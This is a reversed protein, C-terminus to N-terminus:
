IEDLIKNRLDLFLRMENAFTADSSPHMIIKYLDAESPLLYPFEAIKQCSAPDLASESILLRLLRIIKYNLNNYFSQYEEKKSLLEQYLEYLKRFNIGLNESGTLWELFINEKKNRTNNNEEIISLFLHYLSTLVQSIVPSISKLLSLDEKLQQFPVISFLYKILDNCLDGNENYKLILRKAMKVDDNITINKDNFNNLLVVKLYQRNPHELSLLKALTDVSYSQYNSIKLPYEDYTLNDKEASNKKSFGFSLILLILTVTFTYSEIRWHHSINSLTIIMDKKFNFLKRHFKFKASDTFLLWALDNFYRKLFFNQSMIMSNIDSFSINRLIMSITSLQDLILISVDDAGKIHIKSFPSDTECRINKLAEMYSPVFISLNEIDYQSRISPIRSTWKHAVKDFNNDEKNLVISDIESNSPVEINITRETIGIQDIDCGTLSDVLIVKDTKSDTVGVNALTVYEKFTDYISKNGESFSTSINDLYGEVDYQDAYDSVFSLNKDRLIKRESSKKIHTLDDLLNIALKALSNLLSPCQNLAIKLQADASSVLLTNLATTIEGLNNCQLSMSIAHLNVTGLEPAFLFIPKHSNIKEGIQSIYNIDYGNTYDIKRERPKYNRIFTRKYVKPLKALETEYRQKIKQELIIKEQLEQAELLKRQELEQEEKQKRELELEKKTKKKQRPKRPKKPGRKNTTKNTTMESSLNVSSSPQIMQPNLNVSMLNPTAMNLSNSVLNNASMNASNMTTPVFNPSGAGPINTNNGIDNNFSINQNVNSVNQLKNQQLNIDNFQNPNMTQQQQQQQQQQHHHHVNELQIKRLLEQLFQQLFNKKALSEKRGEDTNMYKEYGLLINYYIMQLQQPDLIRLKNAIQNWLQKKTVEEYGGNKTVMLSLYFLNVKKNQIEPISQLPANRRKSNEILSKMFLEYQKNNVEISIKQQLSPSLSQLINKQHQLHQLHQRQQPTLNASQNMPTMNINNYNNNPTNLSSTTTMPSNNTINSNNRNNLIINSTIPSNMSTQIREQQQQQQQQQRLEILRQQQLNTNNNNNNMNITGIMPSANSLVPSGHTSLVQQPQININNSSSAPNITNTNNSNHNFMLIQQPTASAMNYQSPSINNVNTNNSNNINNSNMNISQEYLSGMGMNSSQTNLFDNSTNDNNNNNNNNNLNAGMSDFFANFSDRANNSTNYGGSGSGTGTNAVINDQNNNETSFM